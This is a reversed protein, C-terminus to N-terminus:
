GPWCANSWWRDETDTRGGVVLVKGQQEMGEGTRFEVSSRENANSFRQGLSLQAEGRFEADGATDDLEPANGLVREQAGVAVRGDEGLWAQDLAEAHGDGFRHRTAKGDHRAIAARQGLNDSTSSDDDREALFTRMADVRVIDGVERRGQCRHETVGFLSFLHAGGPEKTNRLKARGCDCRADEIDISLGNRSM